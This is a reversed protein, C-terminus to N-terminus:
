ETFFNKLFSIRKQEHHSVYMFVQQKTWFDSASTCDLYEKQCSLHKEIKTIEDTTELSHGPTHLPVKQLKLIVHLLSIILQWLYHSPILQATDQPLASVSPIRNQALAAM